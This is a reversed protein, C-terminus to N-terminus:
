PSLGEEDGSPFRHNARLGGKAYVLAGRSAGVNIETKIDSGVLHQANIGRLYALPSEEL